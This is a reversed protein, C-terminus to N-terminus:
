APAFAEVLRSELIHRQGPHHSARYHARRISGTWKGSRSCLFPLAPARVRGSTGHQITLGRACTILSSPRSGLHLLHPRDFIVRHVSCLYQLHRQIWTIIICQSIHSIRRRDTRAFASMLAVFHSFSCSVQSWVRSAEARDKSRSVRGRLRRWDVLLM